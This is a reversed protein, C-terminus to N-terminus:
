SATYFKGSGFGVAKLQNYVTRSDASPDWCKYQIRIQPKLHVLDQQDPNLLKKNTM